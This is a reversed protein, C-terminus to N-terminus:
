TGQLLAAEPSLTPRQAPQNHMINGPISITNFTNAYKNSSTPPQGPYPDPYPLLLMLLLAQGKAWM